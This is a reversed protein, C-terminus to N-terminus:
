KANRKGRFNNHNIIVNGGIHTNNGFDGAIQVVQPDTTKQKFLKYYVIRAIGGILAIVVTAGIGSFLWEKNTSLFDVIGVM